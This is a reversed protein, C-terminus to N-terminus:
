ALDLTDRPIVRVQLNLLFDLFTSANSIQFHHKELIKMNGSCLSIQDSLNQDNM